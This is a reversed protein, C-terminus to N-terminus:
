QRVRSSRVVIKLVATRLQYSLARLDGLQWRALPRLTSHVRAEVWGFLLGFILAAAGAVWVGMITGVLWGQALLMYFVGTMLPVHMLYLGYSWDGLRTLFNKESVQPFQVALWVLAASAFGFVLWVEEQSRAQGPAIALFSILLILMLWRCTRGRGRLSYSLVGCLFPANFTSLFFTGWTPFQTSAYGPWLWAKVLLVLLWSGAAAPLWRLGVVSMAALSASLMVEYVLSWEVGLPYICTGWPQPLLSWSINAARVYPHFTDPWVTYSILGWAVAAALWYGPYLRLARGLLFRGPLATRLAHTLVFGSLAFFLPVPFTSWNGLPLFSHSVRFLHEAYYDLHVLLVAAAALIRLVQLNNFRM